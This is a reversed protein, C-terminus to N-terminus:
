FSWLFVSASLDHFMSFQEFQGSVTGLPPSRLVDRNLWRIHVVTHWPALGLVGVRLAHWYKKLSSHRTKTLIRMISFINLKRFCNKKSWDFSLWFLFVWVKIRCNGGSESVAQSENLASVYWDGGLECRHILFGFVSTVRWFSKLRMLWRLLLGRGGGFFGGERWQCM